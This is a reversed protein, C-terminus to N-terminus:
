MEFRSTENIFLLVFRCIKINIEPPLTFSGSVLLEYDIRTEPPTLPSIKELMTQRQFTYNICRFFYHRASEIQPGCTCMPSPICSKNYLDGNLSSFNLRIQCLNIQELRNGIYFHKPVISRVKLYDTLKCKFLAKQSCCRISSPLLNWLHTSSPFFSYRFYSTRCRHGKARTTTRSNGLPRTLFTHLNVSCTKFVISHFKLIKHFTRRTQLTCLGTEELLLHRSTGKKCGTILRLANYQINELTNKDNQSCNDFVVDGYELLPRIFSLYSRHLASRSM